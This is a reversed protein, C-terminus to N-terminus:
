PHRLPPAAKEAPRETRVWGSDFGRLLGAYVRMKLLLFYPVAALALYSRLPLRASAFAILVYLPVAALGALWPLASWFPILGLSFLFVAAAAGLSLVAFSASLPLMALDVMTTLLSVDRRKIATALLRPIWARMIQFRGGEWRVGQTYAGSGGPTTSAYVKAAPAFATTIGAERLILSYEGDEAGSFASWPHERLLSASLLMGNGCLGAPMGLAARGAFRIQNRLLLAIAELESRLSPSDSRLLDDAQVSEHGAAYSAALQDIFDRDAVSDADVIIVAEPADHAALLRDMAWRLAQGKGREQPNTRVMVEAGEALAVAATSDTCNDAIVVVRCRAAPYSQERLSRVCRGILESENHAPVLVVLRPVRSPRATPRPRAFSALALIALYLPTVAALAGAFGIAFAAV